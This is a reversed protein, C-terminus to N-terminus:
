TLLNSVRTTSRDGRYEENWVGLYVGVRRKDLTTPDIGSDRFLMETLELALMQQPDM